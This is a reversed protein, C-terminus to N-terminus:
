NYQKWIPSGQIDYGAQYYLMGNKINKYLSRGDPSNSDFQMDVDNFTDSLGGQKDLHQKGLFTAFGVIGSTIWGLGFVFKSLILGSGGAIAPSTNNIGKKIKTMIGENTGDETTTPTTLERVEQEITEAGEQVEKEGQGILNKGKNLLDTIANNSLGQTSDIYPM